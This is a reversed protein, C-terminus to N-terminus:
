NKYIKGLYNELFNKNKSFYKLLIDRFFVNLPNSLHFAFHNLSSRFNIQKTRLIRKKYYNSSDNKLDNFLENASEISQSAGQAFSPPFSYFADGTLFISSSQPIQFKKSVFIPFCKIKEVQEVLNLNSKSSIQNLLNSIFTNDNFLVISSSSLATSSM